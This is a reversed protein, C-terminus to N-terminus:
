ATPATPHAYPQWLRRGAADWTTGPPFDTRGRRPDWASYILGSESVHAAPWPLQSTIESFIKAAEAHQLDEGPLTAWVEYLTDYGDYISEEGPEVREQRHENPEVVGGVTGERHGDRVTRRVSIGDDEHHSLTAGLAAALREAVEQHPLGTHLLIEDVNSM